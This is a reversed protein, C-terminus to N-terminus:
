RRTMAGTVSTPPSAGRCRQAHARSGDTGSDSLLPSEGAPAMAVTSTALSGMAPTVLSEMPLENPYEDKFM